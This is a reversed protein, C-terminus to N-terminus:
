PEPVDRLRWGVRHLTELDSRGFPRDIKRRLRTIYQDVVNDLVDSAEGWLADFITRRTLVVGPHRTFLELLHFERPSLDLEVSGRWARRTLVDVRLDGNMLYSPDPGLDRRLVARLRAVLEGLHFPKVLYDDTGAAFGAMREELGVLATVMVVPVQRREERLQRCLAVGDIGPLMVDLVVADFRTVGLAELAAEGDLVTTVAFGAGELHRALASAFEGDDDVVLINAGSGKALWWDVPLESHVATATM